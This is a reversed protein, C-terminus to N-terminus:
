IFTLKKLALKLIIESTMDETIEVERVAKIAESSSYGLSVLAEVAEDRPATGSVINASSTNGFSDIVDELKLKDKLELILKQATKAGIGPAKQIAKVDDALIALRLEDPTIASIIGLAAKPGIGNVTILMKFVNLDDKSIFGYLEDADERINQYTYIKVPKGIAPLRNVLSDPVMIEYGVGYAEVFIYKSDIDTLEGKIYAIM